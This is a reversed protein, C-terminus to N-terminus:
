SIICNSKELVGICCRAKNPSFSPSQPNDVNIRPSLDEYIESFKEAKVLRPSNITRLAFGDYSSPSNEVIPDYDDESSSSENITQNNTILIKVYTNSAVNFVRNCKEGIKAPKTLMIKPISDFREDVTISNDPSLFNQDKSLLRETRLIEPVNKSM